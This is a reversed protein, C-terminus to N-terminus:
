MNLLLLSIRQEPLEQSDASHGGSGGRQTLLVGPQSDLESGEVGQQTTEPLSTGGTHFPLARTIVTFRSPGALFCKYISGTESIAAYLSLPLLARGGM